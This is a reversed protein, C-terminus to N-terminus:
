AALTSPHPHADLYRKVKRSRSTLDNQLTSLTSLNRRSPSLSIMAKKKNTMAAELASVWELHGRQVQGRLVRTEGTQHRYKGRNSNNLWQQAMRKGVRHIAAHWAERNKVTEWLKSLNIDKSNTIGDLWRTRQWGRRRGEINRLMLTKQLSDARTDPPWLIPAEAKASTRGIFIWPQGGKPNVPKIEKNGLLSELTKELLVTQFYGNKPAWSDNHDLESM